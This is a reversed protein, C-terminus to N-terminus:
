YTRSLLEVIWLTLHKRDLTSLKVQRRIQVLTFARKLYKEVRFRYKFPRTFFLTKGCVIKLDYNFSVLDIFTLYEKISVNNSILLLIKASSVGSYFHNNAQKWNTHSDCIAYKNVNEFYHFFSADTLTSFMFSCFLIRFTSHQFVLCIYMTGVHANASTRFLTLKYTPKPFTYSISKTTFWVGCRLDFRQNIPNQLNDVLSKVPYKLSHKCNKLLVRVRRCHSSLPSM